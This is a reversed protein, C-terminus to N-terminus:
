GVRLSIRKVAIKAPCIYALAIEVIMAFLSLLQRIAIDFTSYPQVGVLRVGSLNQV